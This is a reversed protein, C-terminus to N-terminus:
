RASRHASNTEAALKKVLKEKLYEVREAPSMGDMLSPRDYKKRLEAHFAAVQQEYDLVAETNNLYYRRFFQVDDVSITPYKPAIEEDTEGNKFHPLLDQVTIRTHPLRPGRGPHQKSDSMDAESTPGAREM